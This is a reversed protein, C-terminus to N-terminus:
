SSGVSFLVFCFGFLVLFFDVGWGFFVGVFVFFFVGFLGLFGGLDVSNIIKKSSIWASKREEKFYHKCVPVSISKPCTIKLYFM